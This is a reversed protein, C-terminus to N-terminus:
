SENENNENVFFCKFIIISYFKCIKFNIEKKTGEFLLQKRYKMFDKLKWWVKKTDIFINKM